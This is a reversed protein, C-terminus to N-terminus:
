QIDRKNTGCSCSSVYAPHEKGCTCKWMGASAPSASRNVPASASTKSAPNVIPEKEEAENSILHLYYLQEATALCIWGRRYNLLGCVGVTALAVGLADMIVGIIIFLDESDIFPLITGVVCLAIGAIILGAMIPLSIATLRKGESFMYNEASVGNPYYKQLIQKKM